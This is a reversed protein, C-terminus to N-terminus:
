PISNLTIHRVCHKPATFYIDSVSSCEFNVKANRLAAVRRLRKGCGGPGEMLQFYGVGTEWWITCVRTPQETETQNTFHQVRGGFAGKRWGSIGDVQVCLFYMKLRNLMVKGWWFIKVVELFSVKCYCYNDVVIHHLKFTGGYIDSYHREYLFM